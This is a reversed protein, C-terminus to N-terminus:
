DDGLASPGVSPAEPAGSAVPMDELPTTPAAVWHSRLVASTDHQPAQDAWAETPMSSSTHADFQTSGAGSGRRITQGVKNRTCPQNTQSLPTRCLRTCTVRLDMQPTFLMAVPLVLAEAPMSPLAQGQSRWSHLPSRTPGSSYTWKAEVRRWWDM